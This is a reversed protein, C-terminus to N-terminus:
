LEVSTDSNSPADSDSGGQGDKDPCDGHNRPSDERPATQDQTQTPTAGGSASGGSASEGGALAGSVPLAVAVAAASLVAAVIGRRRNGHEKM